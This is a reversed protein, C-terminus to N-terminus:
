ARIVTDRSRRDLLQGDPGRVEVVDVTEFLFAERVAHEVLPAIAASAPDAGLDLRVVATRGPLVSLTVGVESTQRAKQKLSWLRSRM